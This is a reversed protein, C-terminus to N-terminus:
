RNIQVNAQKLYSDFLSQAIWQISYAEFERSPNREGIFEKYEQWIHVAEHTLLGSISYLERKEYGRLCVVCCLSGDAKKFYHCTANSQENVVFLPWENRPLNLKKLVKKFQKENLCLCYYPAALLSRDLWELKNKM